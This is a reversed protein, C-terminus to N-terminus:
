MAGHEEKSLVQKITRVLLTLDLWISWNRYYYEDLELRHEFDVDSRGHTQWMGTIGPKSAVVDDYYSGMDVKERPLYPRPGILSMEGKLVNIFQTFEDLSTKRLFAGAKTVRPDDKLKKNEQYEQRIKPDQEMLQDLIKEANPVMTRYKYITFTKGDKGIREQKFFIPDTDGQKRNLVYVYVSLPALVIMGALGACIDISRKFFREVPRITGESTSIMLLGDFDDIKTNFNIIGESVPIYKVTDVLDDLRTTLRTLDTRGIEPIAILVTDINEQEIVKELDKAPYVPHHLEAPTQHINKFYPDNNCDIFAKIKHLSFRNVKCVDELRSASEGVGIILVNKHVKNWLLLHSFRAIILNLLFHCVMFLLLWLIKEWYFNTYNIMLLSGLFYGIYGITMLKLEDWILLARGRYRGAMNQMLVYLLVLKVKYGLTFPFVSVLIATMLLEMINKYLGFKTM